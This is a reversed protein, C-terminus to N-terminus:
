NLSSALQLSVQKLENRRNFKVSIEDGISFKELALILDNNSKIPYQNIQVIVDGPILKGTSSRKVGVLGAKQAPTGQNVEKIMSGTNSHYQQPVLEIGLIPRRVEGYRIIDPVVWKVEDIPISFGIGASAGSPSYIATNVGIVRGSSDLLPGGSNGPNIAADTQIVDKIPTGNESKIERGLASIIGTTLSQDLGFPNGIAFVSQGVRLNNSKGVPSSRLSKGPAIIRLVALDKNAAVGVVSADFSTQDALTVTFKASGQIVHYNTVIHGTDDWIFGTGSGRPIEYIDMSYRDQQFTSTTIFVVSPASREFLAITAEEQNSFAASIDNYGIDQNDFSNNNAKDEYEKEEMSGELTFNENNPEQKRESNSNNGFYFGLGVLLFAAILTYSKM